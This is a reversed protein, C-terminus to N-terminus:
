HLVQGKEGASKRKSGVLPLWADTDGILIMEPKTGKIKAVIVEVGVPIGESGRAIWKYSRNGNKHTEITPSSFLARDIGYESLYDEYVERAGKFLRELAEHTGKIKM